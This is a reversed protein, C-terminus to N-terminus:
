KILIMKKVDQFEGAEIKYYYIGSAFGSADWEVQHYGARQTERVLSKVKQGTLNYITLEVESFAPLQYGIVTKPNFPNPHNQHLAFIKPLVLDDQDIATVIDLSDEWWYQGESAIEIKFKLSQPDHKIYFAYVGNCEVSQLPEIDLFSQTSQQFETVNPDSSSLRAEVDQITYVASENKLSLKLTYLSDMVNKLTYKDEYWVVPGISTFYDLANLHIDHKTGQELDRTRLRVEYLDEEIESIWKIGGWVHDSAGGDGHLGDDYLQISDHLSTHEGKYIAYVTAPHNEPNAIHATVVLTDGATPLYDNLVDASKGYAIETMPNHHKKFFKLIEVNANIDMNTVGLFVNTFIAGPWSHGGNIIKYHIFETEGACDTFSIKQVTSSDEVVTDPIFLTDPQFSCQNTNLWYEIMKSIPWMGDRGTYYPYWYEYGDGHMQMVPMPHIRQWNYADDFLTSAIGAVAAFRQGCEGAMRFTMEGGTSFGCCYVRKMDIDYHTYMTDILASIFGVDDTSPFTRRTDIRESSVNWSEILGQPYVIIFGATDAVEHLRTYDKFWAIDENIGHIAIVLPMNSEFNQPLYVQYERWEGDFIFSSSDDAVQAFILAPAFILIYFVSLSIILRILNQSGVTNKYYCKM